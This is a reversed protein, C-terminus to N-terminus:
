ELSAGCKKCFTAMAPNQFGCHTCFLKEQPPPQQPPQQIYINTTAAATGTAQQQQQQQQQQQKTPQPQIFPLDKPLRTMSLPGKCDPCKLKGKFGLKYAREAGEGSKGGMCDVCWVKQCSSCIFFYNGWKTFHKKDTTSRGCTVCYGLILVELLKLDIEIEM